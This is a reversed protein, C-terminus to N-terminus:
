RFVDFDIVFLFCLIEVSVYKKVLMILKDVVLM